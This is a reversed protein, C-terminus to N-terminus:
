WISKLATLSGQLLRAEGKSVFLEIKTYPTKPFVIETMVCQGADAFLEISSHDLYLLMDVTERKYDVPGAHSGAFDESFDAQGAVSRDVYYQQAIGSYFVELHEGEENSFRVGVRASAPREFSVDLKYLHQGPQDALTTFGSYSGSAITQIPGELVKLEEVPMSRLRYDEGYQHLTFKRSLTMASRWQETPVVQAYQWNSMWGLALRRGDSQPIDSWTVMAYNDKGFDAWYQKKYDAIFNKGDFDGVFYATATGGNPGEKQLSIILVWKTEETGEVMMPFLDPCEWLRKDDPVGFESAFTWNLLNPSTYFWVRDHVSFVMVWHKTEEHWIVKPDRFDKIGPNAIVPNGEYKNFTRGKDTSYAISQYQYTSDGSKEGEPDHHTFLAIMPPQGEKGLGSTNKWDIVASGSFIYGLSDPYLAIPLHEWHVLDPSVAHGWHMPGWVTSDPYYQYFLHYEGEYFVMGNPDNMWKSPPSFHFQPRHAEGYYNQTPIQATNPEM